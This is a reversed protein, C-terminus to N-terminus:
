NAANKVAELEEATRFHLRAIRSTTFYPVWIDGRVVDHAIHRIEAGRSPLHYVTWEGTDPNFKAVADDNSVNTYVMGDNDIVAAYPHQYKYPLPHYTVERTRIDIEALNGGWWNGIWVTDGNKDAGLRRPAQSGPTFPRGMFHLAGSIHYFERDAETMFSEPGPADPPRMPISFSTGAQCFDSDTACGFGVQDMQWNAWWGNGLADGAVGYTSSDGLVPQRYFEFTRAEPDFLLAGHNADGWVKGSRPEPDVTGGVSLGYPPTFTEIEETAPDLRGMRGGTNFWMIGNKDRSIGHGGLAVVGDGAIIKYGTSKGTEHDVKVLTRATNSQSEAIWANGNLDPQVDHLGRGGAAGSPAGMMWDSGNHLVFETPTEAPPVDYETIVVRASDGTPRPHPDFQMPSPGPGRMRALYKALEDKHYTMAVPPRRPNPNVGTYGGGEMVNIIARWGREDFRNQLVYGPLHCETCQVRFVEKMRRDEFTDEPLAALWESGSLQIAFDELTELTFEQRTHGASDLTLKARATKYGKAQAWARYQGSKLEPFFYKGEEDTYVSTTFTQDAARASVVVGELATGDADHIAGSLMAGSGGTQAGVAVALVAVGVVIGASWVVSHRSM